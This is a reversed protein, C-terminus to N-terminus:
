VYATFYGHNCHRGGFKGGFTGRETSRDVFGVIQRMDPGTRGIIGFPM